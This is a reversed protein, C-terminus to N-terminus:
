KIRKYYDDNERRFKELDIENLYLVNERDIYKEVRYYLGKVYVKDKDEQLVVYVIKKEDSKDVCCKM